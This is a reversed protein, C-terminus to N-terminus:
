GTATYSNKKTAKRQSWSSWWIHQISKIGGNESLRKSGM